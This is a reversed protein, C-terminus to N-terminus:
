ALFANANERHKFFVYEESGATEVTVRHAKDGSEVVGQADNYEYRGADGRGITVEEIKKITKLM